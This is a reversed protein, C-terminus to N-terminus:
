DMEKHEQKGLGNKVSFIAVESSLFRDISSVCVKAHYPEIVKDQIGLYSWKDAYGKEDLSGHEWTNSLFFFFNNRM